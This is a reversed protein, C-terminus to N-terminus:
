LVTKIKSCFSRSVRKFATYLLLCRGFCGPNEYGFEKILKQADKIRLKPDTRSINVYNPNHRAMWNDSLIMPDDVWLCCKQCSFCGVYNQKHHDICLITYIAASPQLFTQSGHHSENVVGLTHTRYDIVNIIAKCACANECTSACVCLCKYM